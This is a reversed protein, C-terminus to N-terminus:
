ARVWGDLPIRIEVVFGGTPEPEARLQGDFLSIRERMGLLGHGTGRGNRPVQGRDRVVITLEDDRHSAVLRTPAAAHKLANTLAEQVVRYVTLDLGAPLGAPLDIDATLDLGARRFEEVLAPLDAVGPQPSRGAEHGGDRLVTLLRQLEAVSTRAMEEIRLLAARASEPDHEMLSRAAGAQVGMVSVSHAIVDHLERAILTREEALAADASAEQEALLRKAADVARDAGRWRARVVDGAVWTGLIAFVGFLVEALSREAPIRAYDGALVALGAPLSTWRWSAGYAAVTYNLMAMPLLGSLFGLHAPSVLLQVLLSASGVYMATRPRARRWMVPLTSGLILLSRVWAHSQTSEGVGGDSWGLWIQSEGVICLLAGLAVDVSPRRIRPSVRDPYIGAPRPADAALPVDAIGRPSVSPKLTRGQLGAEPRPLSAVEPIPM